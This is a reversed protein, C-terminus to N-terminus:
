FNGQAFIEYLFISTACALNLSSAEGGMPIKVTYDCNQMFFKSLGEAENGMLLVIPLNLQSARISKEGEETTAIIRLDPYQKKWESFLRLLSDNDDVKQTNVAFYSGMSAGIVDPDYIDVSHGTVIIGDCRFADASRIISGLNGKKSPRDCIIVFPKESLRVMMEKMEFIAMLESTDTRGSIENLLDESLSYNLEAKNQNIFNKGWESLGKDSYIWNKIKWGYKVASKINHIGEIFIEKNQFRKYRNTKLVVIHQFINNKKSVRIENLENKKITNKM